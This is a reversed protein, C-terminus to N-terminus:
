AAVWSLAVLPFLPALCPPQEMGPATGIKSCATWHLRAEQPSISADEQFRLSRSRCPLFLHEWHQFPLSLSRELLLSSFCRVLARSSISSTYLYLLGARLTSTISVSTYNLLTGIRNSWISNNNYGFNDFTVQSTGISFSSGIGGSRGTFTMPNNFVFPTALNLIFTDARVINSIPEFSLINSASFVNAVISARGLYSATTSSFNTTATLSSGSPANGTYLFDVVNITASLGSSSNYPVVGTSLFTYSFVGFTQTGGSDFRASRVNAAPTNQWVWTVTDGVRVTLSANAITSATWPVTITRAPGGALADVVFLGSVTVRDFVLTALGEITCTGLVDLASTPAYGLRWQAGSSLRSFYATSGATILLQQFSMQSLAAQSTFVLSSASSEGLIMVSSNSTLLSGAVSISTSLRVTRGSLDLTGGTFVNTRVGVTTGVGLVAASLVGLFGSGDTSTVSAVSYSGSDAAIIANGGISIPPAGLPAPVPDVLGYGGSASLGAGSSISVRSFRGLNRFGSYTVTNDRFITVSGPGGNVSYAGETVTVTFSCYAIANYCYVVQIGPRFLSGSTRSCSAGTPANFTVAVDFLNPSTSAAIGTPCTLSNTLGVGDVLVRVTCTDVNNVGDSLTYTSTYTTVTNNVIALAGGPAGGSLAVRNPLLPWTLPDATMSVALDRATPPTWMVNLSTQSSTGKAAWVDQPCSTLFSPSVIYPSRLGTGSPTVSYGYIEVRLGPRTNYTMSYFSVTRMRTPNIYNTVTTNQNTNGNFTRDSFNEQYFITGTLSSTYQLKYTTMWYPSDSVGQTAIGTVMFDAGLDITLTSGVAAAGGWGGGTAPVITNFCYGTPLQNLRAATSPYSTVFSTCNSITGRAITFL